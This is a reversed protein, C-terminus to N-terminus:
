KIWELVDPRLDNKSIEGNTKQEAEIASVASIRGRSIWNSVVQKSVGLHYATMKQSGFWDILQNLTERQREKIQQALSM